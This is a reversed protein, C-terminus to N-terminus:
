QESVEGSKQRETFLRLFILALIIGAMDVAYDTASMTRGQTFFQNCEDIAAVLMAVAFSVAVRYKGVADGIAFFILITLVSYFPLHGTNWILREVETGTFSLSKGSVFSLGIATFGWLVSGIFSVRRVALM